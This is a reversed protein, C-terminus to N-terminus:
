GWRPCVLLVVPPALRYRGYPEIRRGPGDRVFGIGNRRWRAIGQEHPHVSPAALDEGDHDRDGGDRAEARDHPPRVVLIHLCAAPPEFRQDHLGRRSRRPYL